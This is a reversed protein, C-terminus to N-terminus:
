NNKSSRRSTAVPKIAPKEVAEVAEEAKAEEVVPEEVAEVTEEVPEAVTEEITEEAEEEVAEVAEVLGRKILSEARADDFTVTEGVLYVKTFDARDHFKHLIRVEM